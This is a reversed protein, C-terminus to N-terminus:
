LQNSLCKDKNTLKIIVETNNSVTIRKDESSVQSVCSVFSVVLNTQWCIHKVILLWIIIYCLRTVLTEGDLEIRPTLIFLSGPYLSTINLNVNSKPKSSAVLTTKINHEAKFVPTLNIMRWTMRVIHIDRWYCYYVSNNKESADWHDLIRFGQIQNALEACKLLGSKGMRVRCISRESNELMAAIKAAKQYVLFRWSIYIM